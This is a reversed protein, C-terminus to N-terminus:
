LKLYFPSIQSRLIDRRYENRLEYKKNGYNGNNFFLYKEERELEWNILKEDRENKKISKGNSNFM